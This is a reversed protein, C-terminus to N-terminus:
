ILKKANVLIKTFFMSMLIFYCCIYKIVFNNYQTNNSLNMCYLQSTVIIPHIKDNYLLFLKQIIKLCYSWLKYIYNYYVVKTDSEIQEVQEVQEVSKNKLQKNIIDILFLKNFKTTMTDFKNKINLMDISKKYEIYKKYIDNKIPNIHLFKTKYYFVYKQKNDEIYNYVPLVARLMNNKYNSILTKLYDM